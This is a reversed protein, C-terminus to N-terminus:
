SKEFRSPSPCLGEFLKTMAKVLDQLETPNQTSVDDNLCLQGVQKKKTLLRKILTTEVQEADTVMVFLADPEHIVYQYRILAKVVIDFAKSQTSTPMMPGFGKRQRHILIKILCDGCDPQQRAVRDLIAATLLVPANSSSRTNDEASFGPALCDDVNFSLCDVDKIALPGDMSTWLIDLNVKPPDLGATELTEPLHYFHRMRYSGGMNQLGDQLDKIVHAREEWSLYGNRDQDSRHMLYSWLVVERHREITYHFSAYWSYLQFGFDGQFRSCASQLEPKPFSLMAERHLKRSLSHGFHAQGKRKRSGFRKNLLWSTYILWPKEGFRKADAETPAHLTNYGNTKFAYLPGYLPSCIDSAAHLRGLLMDDSLAFLRDVGSKTNHLENEISLSNFTPLCGRKEEGFFDEQTLVDLIGGLKGEDLWTPVQRIPVGSANNDILSNVLLQIKNRFPAHKEVSRISYKLENWDRYRNEGHRGLWTGDDDNLTSNLEYPRMTDKFAQDSGNVWTYVFDIRPERLLGWKSVDYTGNVVWEAEWGDLTDNQVADEFPVYVIDPLTDAMEVLAAYRAYSPFGHTDPANLSRPDAEISLSIPRSAFNKSDRKQGAKHDAQMSLGAKHKIRVEANDSIAEEPAFLDKPLEEISVGGDWALSALRSTSWLLSLLAIAPFLTLCRTVDVRRRTRSTWLFGM